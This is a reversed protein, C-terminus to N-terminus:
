CVNPYSRICEGTEINWIKITDSSISVLQNNYSTWLVSIVTNRHGSLTQICKDSAM